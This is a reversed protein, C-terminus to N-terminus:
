GVQNRAQQGVKIDLLVWAHEASSSALYELLDSLRLLKEHPEKITRLSSLYDWNCDAVFKDIGFCRKLSPDQVTLCSRGLFFSLFSFFFSSLIAVYM